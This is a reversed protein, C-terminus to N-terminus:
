DNVVSYNGNSDLTGKEIVRGDKVKFIRIIYVLNKRTAYENPTYWGDSIWTSDSDLKAENFIEGDHSTYESEYGAVFKYYTQLPYQKGNRVSTNEKNPLYCMLMQTWNDGQMNLGGYGLTWRVTNNENNNHFKIFGEYTFEMLINGNPYYIIYSGHKDENITATIRGEEDRMKIVNSYMLDIVANEALLLETAVINLSNVQMWNDNNESPIGLPETGDAPINVFWYSSEHKVCDRFIENWVYGDESTDIDVSYDKRYRLMAGPAGAAGTAGQINAIVAITKTATHTENNADTGVLYITIRFSKIQPLVLVGAQSQPTIKFSSNATVNQAFSTSLEGVWSNKTISCSNTDLTCRQEGWYLESVLTVDVGQLANGESDCDIVIQDLNTYVWPQGAGDRGVANVTVSEVDLVVPNSTDSNDVALVTLCTLNNDFNPQTTTKSAILTAVSMSPDYVGNLYWVNIHSNANLYADTYVNTGTNDIIQLKVDISNPTYTGEDKSIANANLLLKYLTADTTETLTFRKAPSTYQVGLYKVVVHIDFYYKSDPLDINRDGIKTITFIGNREATCKLGSGSNGGFFVSTQIESNCVLDGVFADSEVTTSIYADDDLEVGNAYAKLDTRIPLGDYEKTQTRYAMSDVENTLDFTIYSYDLHTIKVPYTMQTRWGSATVIVFDISFENTDRMQALQADTLTNGNATNDIATVYVDAGDQLVTCGNATVYMAFEGDALEGATGLTLYRKKGSDYVLVGTHLKYVRTTTTGDTSEVYLGGVVNGSADIIINDSGRLLQAHIGQGLQNQIYEWDAADFQNLIGGFYINDEVFLGADGSLEKLHLSGDALKEYASLGNLNGLAVKINSPDIKWTNVNALYLLRPSIGVATIYMSSQREKKNNDTNGYVAFKMLPCPHETVPEGNEAQLEYSFTCEGKSSTVETVKFYSAFYGKKLRFGNADEGEQDYGEYLDTDGLTNYLGRCIDGVDITAWEDGDLKITATGTTDSTQTVELIEGHGISRISEGEEASIKNFVLEAARLAGRVNIEQFDGKGDADIKAGTGLFGPLFYDGFTAGSRAKLLEEFTAVDNFTIKGNAVDDYLKSLFMKAGDNALLSWLAAVNGGGGASFASGNYIRDVAVTLKQLTSQQVSDNLVLEVKPTFGEGMQISMQKITIDIVPLPDSANRPIGRFTFKMGAALRWYVSNYPTGAAVMNEYNRRLYIDDLFPQYTPKTECNDALYDTAARLLRAEAARIYADPMSIGLLVFYDGAAITDNENPYYVNLNNDVARNLTLLYGRIGNYVAPVVNEGIEFERGVCRGTKMAVVPTDGTFTATLDFGMDKIFVHFPTNLTEYGEVSFWTYEPDYSSPNSTSKGVWYKLSFPVSASIESMIAQFTVVIDCQETVAIESVIAGDGNKLDPLEPLVLERVSGGSPILVSAPEYEAITTSDNATRQKIRIKYNANAHINHRAGGVLRFNFVISDQSPGTPTMAYHGPSVNKITFLEIENGITAVTFSVGPTFDLMTQGIVAPKTIGNVGGAEEPLIGDGINADDIITGDDSYGVGLLCDVREEDPQVSAGQFADQGSVGTQDEVGATRLEGFTMGEITPYIEPLESNSGDWRACDERVGEICSEADDNKDIYADNTDGKVAALGQGRANNQAWKTSGNIDAADDTEGEPIFTGPLQLNLPFLSQSLNYKKNYYRYPLNKTSGLARLRTVIKQQSDAVQKIQFLGKGPDESTPYGKGFGFAFSGEDDSTVNNLTYGIYIDHGKIFYDLDFETNVLALAAAVTTNDFTLMKDDTHTVLVTNGSTDIYTTHTDVHVQWGGHPFMRDLNAKIKVALACVPTLTEGNASMEGCYLTFRSSGTYNTGYVAVYDGTTPTVDLMMCRTLEELSSDFKVNEYVFGNQVKGIKANQTVSPIYNLTFREGRFYCFDGVEWEIPTESQITFTISSEGMMAENLKWKNVSCRLAWDTHSEVDTTQVINGGDVTWKNVPVSVAQGVVITKYYIKM